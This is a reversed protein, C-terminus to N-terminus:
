ALDINGKGRNDWLARFEAVFEPNVRKILKLVVTDSRQKTLERVMLPHKNIKEKFGAESADLHKAQKVYTEVTDRALTAVAIVKKISARRFCALTLAVSAVANKAFPTHTSEVQKIESIMAECISLYVDIKDKGLKQEASNDWLDDIIGKLEHVNGKKTGRNFVVCNPVLRDCVSLCLLRRKKVSLKKIVKKLSKKNFKLIENM